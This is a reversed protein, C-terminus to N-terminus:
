ESGKRWVLFAEGQLAGVLRGQVTLALEFPAKERTVSAPTVTPADKGEWPPHLVLVGEGLSREGADCMRVLAHLGAPAEVAIASHLQADADGWAVRATCSESVASKSRGSGLVSAM